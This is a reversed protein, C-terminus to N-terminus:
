LGSGWVFTKWLNFSTQYGDLNIEETAFVMAVAFSSYVYNMITFNVRGNREFAIDNLCNSIVRDYDCAREYHMFHYRPDNEIDVAAGRPYKCFGIFLTSTNRLMHIIVISVKNLCICM